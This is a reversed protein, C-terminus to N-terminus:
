IWTIWKVMNQSVCCCVMFHKFDPFGSIEEQFGLVSLGCMSCFCCEDTEQASCREPDRGWERFSSTRWPQTRLWRREPNRKVCIYYTVIKLDSEWVSYGEIKFAEVSGVCAGRVAGNILIM